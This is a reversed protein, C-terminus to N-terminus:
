GALEAVVPVPLDYATCPPLSYLLVPLPSRDAVAQYYTLMERDRMQRRYFHPTRVLVVDYNLAAAYDALRLTEFVSERGVGAILDKDPASADRAVRLAERSEEDSLMVAEGTTGLLVMGSMPTLSYLDMNAELKRWYPREAPYFCTTVAAFIGELLM